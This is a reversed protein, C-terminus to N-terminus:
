LPQHELNAALPLSRGLRTTSLSVQRIVARVEALTSPELKVV